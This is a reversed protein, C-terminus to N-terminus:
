HYNRRTPNSRIRLWYPRRQYDRRSHLRCIYPPCVSITNRLDIEYVSLLRLVKAPIM